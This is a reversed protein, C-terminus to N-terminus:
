VLFPTRDRRVIAALGERYSPFKLQVGLEQKIRQNAVRKEALLESAKEAPPAAPTQGLEAANGGAPELTDQLDLLQCAYALM